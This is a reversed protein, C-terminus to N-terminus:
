GTVTGPCHNVTRHGCGTPIFMGGAYYGLVMVLEGAPASITPIVNDPVTTGGGETISNISEVGPMIVGDEANATFAVVLWLYTGDASELDLAIDAITENDPGGTIVGGRLWTNDEDDTFIYGFPCDTAAASVAGRPSAATFEPFRIESNETGM